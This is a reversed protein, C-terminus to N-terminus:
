LFLGKQIFCAYLIYIHINSIYLDSLLNDGRSLMEIPSFYGNEM